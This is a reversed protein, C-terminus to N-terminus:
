GLGVLRALRALKVLLAVKLCAMSPLKFKAGVSM